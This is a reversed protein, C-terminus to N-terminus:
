SFINKEIQGYSLILTRIPITWGKSQFDKYIKRAAEKSLGTKRLYQSAGMMAIVRVLGSGYVEFRAQSICSGNDEAVLTHSKM